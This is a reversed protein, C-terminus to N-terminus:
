IMEKLFSASLPQCPMIYLQDPNGKLLICCASFSYMDQLTTMLARHVDFRDLAAVFRKGITNLFELESSITPLRDEIGDMTGVLIRSGEHVSSYTNKTGQYQSQM